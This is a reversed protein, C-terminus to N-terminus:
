GQKGPWDHAFHLCLGGDGCITRDGRGWGQTRMDDDSWVYYWRGDRLADPDTLLLRAVRIAEPTPVDARAYFGSMAGDITTAFGPEGVRNALVRAVSLECGHGVDGCEGALLLSITLLLANV